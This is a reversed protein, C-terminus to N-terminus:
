GGNVKLRRLMQFYLVNSCLFAVTSWIGIKLFVNICSQFSFHLVLHAPAYILSSFPLYIAIKQLFTPYYDLPLLLGGFLFSGRQWLWFIPTADHLSFASLGICIQFLIIVLGSTTGMLFAFFLNTLSPTIQSLFLCFPFSLMCLLLYRFFFSGIHESIKLTLYRTPKILHYVIDGTRIDNEIDVQIMPVALVITETVALYWIMLQKNEPDLFPTIEWLKSFIFLIALFFASRILVENRNKSNHLFSFWTLLFYKKM